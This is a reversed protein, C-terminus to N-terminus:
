DGSAGGPPSPSLVPLPPPQARSFAEDLIRALELNMFKTGITFRSGPTVQVRGEPLDLTVSEMCVWVGAGDRRFHRIWGEIKAMQAGRVARRTRKATQFLGPPSAAPRSSSTPRRSVMSTIDGM